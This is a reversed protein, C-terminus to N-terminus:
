DCLLHDFTTRGIRDKGLGEDFAARLKDVSEFHHAYSAFAAAFEAMLPDSLSDVAKQLDASQAKRAETQRRTMTRNQMHRIKEYAEDRRRGLREWFTPAFHFCSGDYKALPDGRVSIQPCVRIVQFM